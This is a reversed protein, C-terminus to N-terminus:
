GFSTSELARASQELTYQLQQKQARTLPAVGAEAELERCQQQLRLLGTSAAAGKLKHLQEAQRSGSDSDLIAALMRTSEARFLEIMQQVKEAGLYETDQDLVSRDIWDNSETDGAEPAPYRDAETEVPSIGSVADALAPRLKKMQLPKAIFGDFGAQLYGDVEERFVQASVAIIPLERNQATALRRLQGSLEVGNIDPLNIDVLAIDFQRNSLQELASVGDDVACVHHGLKELLGRAVMQNVANDEVLLVQLPGTTHDPLAAPLAAPASGIALALEFWFRSGREPESNLQLNGGMARVLRQSITLGLGTGGMPNYEGEQSFAEFVRQQHRAPIGIGTDQVEFRIGTRDSQHCPIGHIILTVKGRRTFKIANGLLNSLVQRLKGQDAQLWPPLEPDIDLSLALGKSRARAEMLAILEHGLATPSFDVTSIRLQGSEVRSYDLIDNLIDLLHESSGLITDLYHRQHQDLRTDALLELTGIVGNMPTRIEHSMHALFTSKAQSAQEARLKAIEHDQVERNLRQNAETLQETRQEVLKELSAKHSRLQRETELQERELQQRALANQRFVELARSMETLEDDGADDLTLALEGSALRHMADTRESLRRVIDRYVVRWMMFILLGLTALGSGIVILEGQQLLQKLQGTARLATDSSQRILQDVVATLQGFSTQNDEDLQQLLQRSRLLDSKSNFLSGHDDLVGLAREMRRRRHPDAVAAVRRDIVELLQQYERRTDQLQDARALLPLRNILHRLQLSTRLLESMQELQDIDKELVRDLAQHLASASEGDDIQQYLGTLDAMTITSANAVQSRTQDAILEAAEAYRESLTGLQQQHDIRQLARPALQGLNEGIHAVILELQEVQLPDFQLQRFNDLLGALQRGQRQLDHSLQLHRNRDSTNSLSRATHNVSLNLEALQRAATMAPIAQDAIQRESGTIQRFGYWGILSATLSLAAMLSFAYLLKRGISLKSIM